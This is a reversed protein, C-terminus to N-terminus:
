SRYCGAPKWIEAVDIRDDPDLQDQILIANDAPEQHGSCDAGSPRPVHPMGGEDIIFNHLKALSVIILTSNSVSTHLPRWLIGWRSVLIGFAQEIFIRASSHWYNFCDKAVSINRGSHPTLLGEACVYAEDGAIWYDRALAGSKLLDSFASMRFAVSDHTCGPAVASVFSFRYSADCMAQVVIAFSGKRNYYSSPNPIEGARPETDRVALGDIAGVCRSLPSIGRGFARSQSDNNDRDDPSFEISISDNILHLVEDSSAFFSSVAVLQCVAIDLYSGGALWRLCM